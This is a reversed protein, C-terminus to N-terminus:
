FGADPPTDSLHKLYQAVYDVGVVEAFLDMLRKTVPGPM